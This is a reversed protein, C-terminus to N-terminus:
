RRWCAALVSGEAVWAKKLHVLLLFGAEVAAFLAARLFVKVVLSTLVYLVVEGGIHLGMAVAVLLQQVEVLLPLLSFTAVICSL